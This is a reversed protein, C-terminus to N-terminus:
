PGKIVGAKRIIKGAYSIGAFRITVPEGRMFSVKDGLPQHYDPDYKVTQGVEGRMTLGYEELVHVLQKAIILVAKAQVPQNEVELLYTQTLLQTIPGALDGLLQEIQAQMAETMRAGARSRQRELDEKLTAIMCDRDALELRLTQLERELTLVRDPTSTKGLLKTLWGLM